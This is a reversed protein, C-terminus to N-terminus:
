HGNMNTIVNLHKGLELYAKEFVQTPYEWIVNEFRKLAEFYINQSKWIDPELGISRLLKIIEILTEIAFAPPSDEIIIKLEELIRESIVLQLADIDNFEINWKNFENVLNSLTRLNLHEGKFFNYLDQNVIFRIADLYVKPVPANSAQIGNMLVYNNKYVQRFLTEISKISEQTILDLIKRKEDRFLHWTTFKEEGFYTPMLSIVEGLNAETFASTVKEKMENFLDLPMDTSIYGLINQQGLYLVIFSFHKRSHTIQSQVWTRGYALRNIGAHLREFTENDSVYNFFELHEPYAEFLSSAAYHMGVRTLDLRAPAVNNLYSVSGDQHYNSSIKELGKLFA